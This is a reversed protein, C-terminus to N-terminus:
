IPFHQALQAGCAAIVGELADALTGRRAAATFDAVIRNWAAQGIRRDLEDDTVLEVYREGLSLFVVMGPRRDQAALIRAAFARHAFERARQHRLRRPVLLLKLPTWELALSLLAFVAAECVIALRLGIAPAFLALVGGAVLAAFAGFAVPYLLYRDSVPAVAIEFRAATRGRAAEAAAHLRAREAESFRRAAM